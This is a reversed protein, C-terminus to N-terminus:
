KKEADDQVAHEAHAGRNVFEQKWIRFRRNFANSKINLNHSRHSKHSSNRENQLICNQLFMAAMCATAGAKSGRFVVKANKFSEIRSFNVLLYDLGIWDLGIWDLGVM